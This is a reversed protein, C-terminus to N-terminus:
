SVPPVIAPEPAFLGASGQVRSSRFPLLMLHPCCWSGLKHSGNCFFVHSRKNRLIQLRSCSLRLSPATGKRAGPEPPEPGLFSARPAPSSAGLPWRTALTLVSGSAGLQCVPSSHVVCLICVLAGQFPVSAWKRGAPRCFSSKGRSPSVNQQTERTIAIVAM